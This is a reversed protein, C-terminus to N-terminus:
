VNLSMVSYEPQLSLLSHALSLHVYSCTLRVQINCHTHQLTSSHVKVKWSRNHSSHTSYIRDWFIKPAGSCHGTARTSTMDFQKQGNANCFRRIATKRITHERMVHVRTRSKFNFATYIHADPIYTKRDLVRTEVNCHRSSSTSTFTIARNAAM